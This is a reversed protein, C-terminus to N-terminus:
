EANQNIAIYSTLGLTKAAQVLVDSPNKWTISGNVRELERSLSAILQLGATDVKEVSSALLEISSSEALAENLKEHLEASKAITLAEGCDVTQITAM